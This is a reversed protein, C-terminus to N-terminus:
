LLLGALAIFMPKGIQKLEELYKLIRKQESNKRETLDRVDEM